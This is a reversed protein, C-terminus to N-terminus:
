LGDISAMWRHMNTLAGRLPILGFGVCLTSILPANWDLFFVNQTCMNINYVNLNFFCVLKSFSKKGMVLFM